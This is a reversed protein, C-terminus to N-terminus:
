SGTEILLVQHSVTSAPRVVHFTVTYSAARGGHSAKETETKTQCVCETERHTVSVSVCPM